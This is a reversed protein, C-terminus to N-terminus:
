ALAERELVQKGDRNEVHLRDVRDPLTPHWAHLERADEQALRQTFIELNAFTGEQGAGCLQVGDALDLLLHFLELGIALREEEGRGSCYVLILHTHLTELGEATVPLPAELRFRSWPKLVWFASETPTRPTLRLPVGESRFAAEPLDELRSIGQCLDRLLADKEQAEMLPVRRFRDAHRGQALGLAPRGDAEPALRADEWEFYARRRLSALSDGPRAALRLARDIAPNSDLAPDFRALEALLEGQRHPSTADFARDAFHGPVLGPDAHLDQCDHIGFLIYSLAARLERATIHIEGRQHCAQLAATLRARVRPGLEPDVLTRESRRATCRDQATCTACDTWPNRAEQRGLLRDLLAGLFDTGIRRNVSDIGGVLSRRNLNILRFRPNLMQDNGKLTALLQENLPTDESQADIWELLKGDNVAVVHVRKGGGIGGRFPKFIEDLLENASRGKWAAAGDLNVMMTRGDSLRHNWIRRSSPIDGAGLESALHQLFATKGDGANGFLIVLDVSGNEIEKKLAHDLRTEVYTATAFRSDLGRTEINGHRSGPYVALLESLWPATNPTPPAPVPEPKSRPEPECLRRLVALAEAAGSFREGPNPSTARDLFECVKPYSSKDIGSWNLGLGKSRDAGHLFPERDFLLHFFSAALAFIDDAPEISWSKEVSPSSYLVTGGHPIESAAVVTDYDTLVVEGGQVILNRPSVDGHVLGAAHLNALADCLDALWRLALADASAEGIDEAYLPLVGLLDQVPLGEVWKMLAVFRNAEWAPAIELLTSLHAHTTHSRVRRYARLAREGDEAHRIVKAVYTGYLEESHADVEVVKFTQGIGGRGLRGLIKYRSNQFPM